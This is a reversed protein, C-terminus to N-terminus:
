VFIYCETPYYAGPWGWRLGRERVDPCSSVIRELRQYHGLIRVCDKCGSLCCWLVVDDGIVYGSRM